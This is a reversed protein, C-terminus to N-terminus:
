LALLRYPVWVARYYFRALRVSRMVRRPLVMTEFGDVLMLLVLLAGGIAGIASLNSELRFGALSRYQRLWPSIM